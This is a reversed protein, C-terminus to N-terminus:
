FSVWHRDSDGLRVMRGRCLPKTIDMKVQVRMCTGWARGGELADVFVVEGLSSEILEGNAKTM